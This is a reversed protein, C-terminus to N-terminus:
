VVGMRTSVIKGPQSCQSPAEPAEGLQFPLDCHAVIAELDLRPGNKKLAHDM